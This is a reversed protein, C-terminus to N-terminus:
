SELWTEGGLRLLEVVRNPDSRADPGAFLEYCRAQRTLAALLALKGASDSRGLLQLGSAELLGGLARRPDLRRLETRGEPTVRSFLLVQPRCSPAYQQPFTARIELRRRLGGDEDPVAAGAAVGPYYGEENNNVYFGTRL